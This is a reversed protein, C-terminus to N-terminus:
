LAGTIGQSGMSIHRFRDDVGRQLLRNEVNHVRGTCSGGAYLDADTLGHVFASREDLLRPLFVFAPQFDLPKGSGGQQGFEASCSEDQEAILVDLTKCLTNPCFVGNVLLLLETEDFRHSIIKTPPRNRNM